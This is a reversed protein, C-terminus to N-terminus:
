LNSNKREGRNEVEIKIRQHREVQSIKEIKEKKETTHKQKEHKMWEKWIKTKREKKRQKERKKREKNEKREDVAKGEIPYSLNWILRDEKKFFCFVCSTVACWFWNFTAYWPLLSLLM